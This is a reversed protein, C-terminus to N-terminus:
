RGVEKRVVPLRLERTAAGISALATTDTTDEDRRWCIAYGSLDPTPRTTTM